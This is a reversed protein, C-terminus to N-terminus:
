LQRLIERRKEDYEEKTILGAEKLTALQELRKQPDPGISSIHQHDASGQSFSGDEEEDEIHIEPGSYHKGFSQYATYATIAVAMGTWLLGFLGFTPVVVFLGILVFIGGWIVGFIGPTKGPRYTVRKRNRGSM